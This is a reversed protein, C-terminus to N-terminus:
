SSRGGVGSQQPRVVDEEGADDAIENGVDKPIVDPGPSFCSPNEFAAFSEADALLMEVFNAFAHLLM